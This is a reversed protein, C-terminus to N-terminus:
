LTKKEKKQRKKLSKEAKNISRALKKRDFFIWYGPIMCMFVELLIGLVFLMTNQHMFHNWWEYGFLSWLNAAMHAVIATWLTGTRHYMLALLMGLISAYLFQVINGHYLGFFLASLIIAASPKLWDKMRRFVLGRFVLEEAIPAVMGVTVILLWVPQNEMTLQTVQTYGPFLENLKLLILLDNLIQCGAVALVIVAYWVVPPCWVADAGKGLQGEKRKRQDKRYMLFAIAGALISTVILQYLSTEMVQQLITETQVKGSSRELVGMMFYTIAGVMAGISVVYHILVPYISRWINRATGRKVPEVAPIKKEEEVPNEGDNEDQSLSFDVLTEMQVNRISEVHETTEEDNPSALIALDEVTEAIYVAGSNELEEVSGYGYSVGVCQIGCSIAGYVDHKRDGVMIVKDRQEQMGIRRLAEEIVEAKKVRTGDLESGVVVHFYSDIEFHKLIRKVFIEPKSSAVGLVKDNIQLLELLEPIKDYLVNEFIGTDQFRERYYVIAQEAQEETMGAFEMFSDKLPPGIYKKLHDLNDEVIGMKDLAYQVSKTIGELPDTLTGDLDFLIVQSM